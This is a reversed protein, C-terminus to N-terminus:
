QAELEEVLKPNLRKGFNEAIKQLRELDPKSNVGGLMNPKIFIEASKEATHILGFSEDLNRGSAFIGHHQWVVRRHDKMADATARGIEYSGAMMWPLLLVGKPFVVACEVHHAWLLLSLEATSYEKHYTLAILNPTHTHIVAHEVGGSEVKCVEHTMLHAFLESTPRSGGEYGWLIRYNKGKEDLQIVGVNKEPFLPINRLFRGTGSM